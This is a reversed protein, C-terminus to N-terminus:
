NAEAEERLIQRYEEELTRLYTPIDEKMGQFEKFRDRLFAYFKTEPDYSTFAPMPAQEMYLSSFHLSRDDMIKDAGFQDYLAPLELVTGSTNRHLITQMEESVLYKLVIFAEEKYPSHPSITYSFPNAFSGVNRKDPWSPMSVVDFDMGEVKSYSEFANASTMFMAIQQNSFSAKSEEPYNGPIAIIKKMLEYYQTFAPNNAFNVNGDPGVGQASLQMLPVTLQFSNFVLGRYAIGDREGTVQKALEIIEDWTMGDHPYEVGFKDFIAKNYFVGNMIEEIPLGLLRQEGDPDRARLFDIAGSRIKSLDLEHSAIMDDLPYLMDVKKLVAFGRHALLIDPVIGQAFTEQLEKEDVVQAILEMAVHPFKAEVHNKVRSAFSEEDWPAMFTLTVPHDITDKPPDSPKSESANEITSEKTTQAPMSSSESSPATSSCATAFMLMVMMLFMLWSRSTTGAATGALFRRSKNMKAKKMTENEAEKYIFEPYLGIM